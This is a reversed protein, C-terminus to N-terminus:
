LPKGPAANHRRLGLIIDTRKGGKPVSHSMPSRSRRFLAFGAFAGFLLAFGGNLLFFLKGFDNSLSLDELSVGLSGRVAFAPDIEASPMKFAVVLLAAGASAVAIAAISRLHVRM